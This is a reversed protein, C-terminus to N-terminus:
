AMSGDFSLHQMFDYFIPNFFCSLSFLLRPFLSILSRKNMELLGLLSVLCGAIKFMAGLCSAERVERGAVRGQQPPKADQTKSQSSAHQSEDQCRCSTPM